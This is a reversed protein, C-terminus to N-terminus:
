PHVPPLLEAVLCRFGPLVEGGTLEQREGLTVSTVAPGPDGGRLHVRVKRAAPQVVWVARVGFRLYAAVKADIERRRNSPSLVSRGTTDGSAPAAVEVALDPAIEPFASVGDDAAFPSGPDGPRLRGKAVFAVDPCLVTDPDRELVFGTSESFLVGLDHADVHRALTVLVRSVLYGHAGSAPMVPRLEGRWLEHPLDPEPLGALDHITHLATTSAMPVSGPM